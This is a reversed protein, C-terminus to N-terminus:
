AAEKRTPSLAQRFATAEGHPTPLARMVAAIEDERASEVRTTAAADRYRPLLWWATAPVPLLPLAASGRYHYRRTAM